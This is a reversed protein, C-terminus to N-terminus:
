HRQLYAQLRQWAPSDVRLWLAQVRASGDTHTTVRGLEVVAVQQDECTRLRLAVAYEESRTRALQRCQLAQPADEPDILDNLAVHQDRFHEPPYGTLEAINDTVFLTLPAAELTASWVVGPMGHLLSNYQRKTHALHNRQDRVETLDQIFGVFLLPEARRVKQVTLSMPFESGDKRVGTLERTKSIVRKDNGDLQYRSLYIDHASKFPEPMLINVNRGIIDDETWLFMKEASKNFSRILGDQTITVIADDSSDLIAKQQASTELTSRSQRTARLLRSVLWGSLLAFGM